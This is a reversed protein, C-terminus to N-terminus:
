KAPSPMTRQQRWDHDAARSMLNRASHPDTGQLSTLPTSRLALRESPMLLREIGADLAVLTQVLGVARRLVVGRPQTEYTDCVLGTMEEAIAAAVSNAVGDAVEVPVDVVPCGAELQEDLVRALRVRRECRELDLGCSREVLEKRHQKESRIVWASGDLLAERVAHLNVELAVTM